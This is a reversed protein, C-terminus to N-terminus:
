QRWCMRTGRELVPLKTPRQPRCGPTLLHQECERHTGLCSTNGCLVPLHLFSVTVGQKSGQLAEKYDRSLAADQFTFCSLFKVTRNEDSVKTAYLRYFYVSYKPQESKLSFHKHLLGINKNLAVVLLTKCPLTM